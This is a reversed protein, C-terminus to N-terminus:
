KTILSTTMTDVDSSQSVGFVLQDLPALYPQIDRAYRDKDAGAPALNELLGRVATLDVWGYGPSDAGVRGLAATFRANSALSASGTADLAQRVFAPAGIAVLDGRVAFAVEVHGSVGEPLGATSGGLRQAIDGGDVITITTGAHDEDHSAVGISGGGLALLNRVSRAFAEAKTADKPAIVLGATVGADARSVVVTTEGIWGLAADEGGLLGFGQDVSKLADAMGPISRYTELAAHLVTGYDHADYVAIAGAPVHSATVTAARAVVPAAAVHPLVSRVTLADGNTAVLDGGVWAPVLNRLEAPPPSVSTGFAATLRVMADTYAKLNVYATALHDGDLHSQARGFGDDKALGGSGNADISAKVSALDGVLLVRDLVAISTQPRGSGGTTRITAGAYTEQTPSAGAAALTKTVWADAAPRDKVSAVVLYRPDPVPRGDAAGGASGLEEPLPGMATAIQGGFWPRVDGSYDHSGDTAARIARDLSEAIKDDLTSQDKFGPFHALVNGLQQRQDGPLDLRLEAYTVSDAPVWGALSSGGASGALFWAGAATTAAVLAVVVLAVIWRLGVRTRSTVPQPPAPRGTPELEEITAIPDTTPDTM